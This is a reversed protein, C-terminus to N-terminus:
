LAELLHDALYSSRVYPGAFVARFGMQLGKEEFGRFAVPAVYRAVPFHTRSPQLYQGITLLDCGVARLDAMAEEIEADTEGLGVMLGSKTLIEPYVRKAYGLVQLSTDYRAVSRVARTIRRVTELNHNFVRPAARLVPDLCDSRGQFDPTLVEVTVAPNHRKVQALTEAFHGAGLDPLDDRDVSTIVVHRLKLSKVFQATALPEGSNLAAPRGSRVACFRCSRTCVDGMIMVTAVGKGFCEGLNPCRAEECVTHLERSRLGRKFHLVAPDARWPKHLWDPKRAPAAPLSSTFQQNEPAIPMKIALDRPTLGKGM